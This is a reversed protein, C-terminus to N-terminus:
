FDVFSYYLSYNYLIVFCILILPAHTIKTSPFFCAKTFIQFSTPLLNQFLTECRLLNPEVMMPMSAVTIFSAAITMFAMIGMLSVLNRKILIVGHFGDQMGYSVVDQKKKTTLHRTYTQM